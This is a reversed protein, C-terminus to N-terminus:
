FSYIYCQSNTTVIAYNYQMSVNIIREKFDFEEHMDNVLDSVQIKNNETM